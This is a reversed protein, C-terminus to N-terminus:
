TRVLDYGDPRDRMEWGAALLEDRVRDAAEFDREARAAVRREALAVIEPPAEDREAVSELGFVALGRRLLELQGGSAWDHMVALAAPTDFDDDLAAAFAAWRSEDHAAAPRTSANRLTDLRAAAQQM